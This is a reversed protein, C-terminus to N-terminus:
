YSRVFDTEEEVGPKEGMRHQAAPTPGGKGSQETWPM